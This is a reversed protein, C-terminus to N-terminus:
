DRGFQKGSWTLNKMNNFVSELTGVGLQNPQYNNIFNKNALSSGMQRKVNLGEELAKEFEKKQEAETQTSKISLKIVKSLTFPKDKGDVTKSQKVYLDKGKRLSIGKPLKEQIYTRVSSLM